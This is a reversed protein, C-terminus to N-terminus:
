FVFSLLPHNLDNELAEMEPSFRKSQDKKLIALQEKALTFEGLGINSLIQLWNSFYQLRKDRLSLLSRALDRSYTYKGQEFYIFTSLLKAKGFIPDLPFISDLHALAPDYKNDNALSAAKSLHLNSANGWSDIQYDPRIYHKKILAERGYHRSAYQNLGIFGLLAAMIAVVIWNPKKSVWGM